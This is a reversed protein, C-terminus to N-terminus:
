ISGGPSVVGGWFSIARRHAASLEGEEVLEAFAVEVSGKITSTHDLLAFPVDGGGPPLAAAGIWLLKWTKARSLFPGTDCAPLETPGVRRTVSRGLTAGHSGRSAQVCLFAHFVGGRRARLVGGVHLWWVSLLRAVAGGHPPPLGPAGPHAVAGRQWYRADGGWAIDLREEPLRRAARYAGALAARCARPDGAAGPRPLGHAAAVEIWVNAERMEVCSNALFALEPSLPPLYTAVLAKCLDPLELFPFPPSAGAPIDDGGSGAPMDGGGGGGLLSSLTQSLWSVM